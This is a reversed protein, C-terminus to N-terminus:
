GRGGDDQGNRRGRCGSHAHLRNRSCPPPPQAGRRWRGARLPLAGRGGRGGHAFVAARGVGRGVLAKGPPRGRQDARGDLLAKELEKLFLGKGGIEALTRDQNEDGKTSIKRVSIAGAPLSVTGHLATVIQETQALALPSARTGIIIQRTM